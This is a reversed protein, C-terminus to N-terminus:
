SVPSTEGQGGNLHRCWEPAAICRDGRRSVHRCLPSSDKQDLLGFTLCWRRCVTTMVNDGTNVDAGLEILVRASNEGNVM